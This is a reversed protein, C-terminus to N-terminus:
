RGIERFYDQILRPPINTNYPQNPRYVSKWPGERSLACLQHATYLGYVHLIEDLFAIDGFDIPSSYPEMGYHRFHYYVSPIVPGFEWAEAYENFLFKGFKAMHWGYAFYTLFLMKMPPMPTKSAFYSAVVVADTM